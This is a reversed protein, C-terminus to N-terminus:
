VTQRIMESLIGLIKSVDEIYYERMDIYVDSNELKIFKWASGSTVAGYIKGIPNGENENFIRAAVMEAICQGLGGVINENKAEVITIVPASLFFQEPSASIVFDCFGSLDRHKDINMEIGSFISVKHEFMKRIEVIVNAIIFESRAKETNISLALPVNEELIETLQRSVELSEVHSFLDQDEITRLQFAMKVKKLTFDSYSM